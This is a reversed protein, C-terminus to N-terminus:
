FEAVPRAFQKGKWRRHATFGEDDKKSWTIASAAQTVLCPSGRHEANL